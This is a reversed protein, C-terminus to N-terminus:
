ALRDMNKRILEQFRFFLRARTSIPTNKWTKFAETAAAVATDIEEATSFPVEALVEQTAPNTVEEWHSTTSDIFQGNILMKVKLPFESKDTHTQKTNSEAGM